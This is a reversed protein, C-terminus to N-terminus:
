CWTADGFVHILDHDQERFVGNFKVNGIEEATAGTTWDAIMDRNYWRISLEERIVDIRADHEATRKELRDLKAYNTPYAEAESIQDLMTLTCRYLRCALAILQRDTKDALQQTM